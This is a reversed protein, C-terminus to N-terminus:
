DPLALTIIMAAIEAFKMKGLSSGKPIAENMYILWQLNTMPMGKDTYMKVCTVTIDGIKKLGESVKPQIKELERKIRKEQPTGQRIFGGDDLTALDYSLKDISTNDPTARTPKPARSPRSSDSNNGAKPNDGIKKLAGTNSDLPRRLREIRNGDINISPQQDGPFFILSAIWGAGTAKSGSDYSEPDYIYIYVHTAKSHHEFETRMAAKFRWELITRLQSETSDVSAVLREVIQAKPPADHKDRDVIVYRRRTLKEALLSKQTRSKVKESVQDKFTSNLAVVWETRDKAAAESDYIYISVSTPRSHHKLPVARASTLEESLFQNLRREDINPTALFHRIIHARIPSDQKEESILTISIQDIISSSIPANIVEVEKETQSSETNNPAVRLSNAGEVAAYEGSFDPIQRIPNRLPSAPTRCAGSFLICAAILLSCCISIFTKAAIIVRM